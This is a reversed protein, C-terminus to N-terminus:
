RATVKKEGQSLFNNQFHWHRVGWIKIHFLPKALTTLHVLRSTPFHYWILRPTYWTWLHTRSPPSMEGTTDLLTQIILSLDSLDSSVVCGFHGPTDRFSPLSLRICIRGTLVFIATNGLPNKPFMCFIQM